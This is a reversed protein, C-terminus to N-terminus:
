RDDGDPEAVVDLPISVGADDDHWDCGHWSGPCDGEPGEGCPCTKGEIADALASLLEALEESVPLYSENALGAARVAEHRAAAERLVRLLAGQREELDRIREEAKGLDERLGDIYNWLDSHDSHSNM